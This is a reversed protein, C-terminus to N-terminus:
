LAASTPQLWFRARLPRKSRHVEQKDGGDAKFSLLPLNIVSGILTCMLLLYASEPSLGLKDFAISILGVQVFGLLFAVALFFILFKLPSFPM